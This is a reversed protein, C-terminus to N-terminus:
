PFNRLLDRIQACTPCCQPHAVEACSCPLYEEETITDQGLLVGNFVNSNPCDASHFMHPTEGEIPRHCIACIM